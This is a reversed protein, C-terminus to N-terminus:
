FQQEFLTISYVKQHLFHDCVETKSIRRWRVYNQKQKPKAPFVVAEGKHIEANWGNLDLKIGRLV